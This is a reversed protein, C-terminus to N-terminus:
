WSVCACVCRAVAVVSVEGYQLDVYVAYLVFEVLQFQEDVVCVCVYDGDLFCLEGM